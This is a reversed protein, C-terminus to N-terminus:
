LAVQPFASEFQLELFGLERIVLEPAGSAMGDGVRVYMHLSVRVSWPHLLHSGTGVWGGGAEM